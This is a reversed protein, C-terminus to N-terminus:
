NRHFIQTNGTMQFGPIVANGVFTIVAQVDFISLSYKISCWHYLSIDKDNCLYGFKYNKRTNQLIYCYAIQLM